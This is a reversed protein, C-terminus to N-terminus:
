SADRGDSKRGDSIRSGTQPLVTLLREIFPANRWRKERALGLRVVVLKRSPIITLIQGSHGMARMTDKPYTSSAGSHDPSFAGVWWHAGYVGDNSSASPKSSFNVWGEPLIREGQWVGDLRFLEGLRVWDRATAYMYSSAVFTGSTDLEIVASTMGIRHFLKTRPYARYAAPDNGLAGQLALSLLNSTGSSYHFMDGPAFSLQKGAALGATDGTDYLMRVVDSLPNDYDEDWDLGSTMTLLHYWTIGARPDDATRRWAAIPVPTEIDLGHSQVLVGVLANFASKTMSWGLMRRDPGFGPAYREAILKGDYAVALARTNVLPDAFAEAMVSDLGAADIGPVLAAPESLADKGPPPHLRPDSLSQLSDADVGIALTCGLGDRYVAIRTNTGFFDGYVRKNARDLRYNTLALLPNNGAIIDVKFVPEPDRGAVFVESCLRKAVYGAGVPGLKWFIFGIAFAVPVCLFVGIRVSWLRGRTM